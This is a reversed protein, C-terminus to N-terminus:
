RSPYSLKPPPPILISVIKKVFSEDLPKQFLIDLDFSGPSPTIASLVIIPVNKTRPNSKIGSYVQWGSQGPLMLDMVILDFSESELRAAAAPGSDAWEVKLGIRELVTRTLDACEEDDEIMLIKFKSLKETDYKPRPPPIIEFPASIPATGPSPSPPPPPPPPPLAPSIAQTQIEPEPAPPSVPEPVPEPVPIRSSQEAVLKLSQLTEQLQIREHQLIKILSESEEYISQYKGSPDMRMILQRLRSGELNITERLRVAESFMREPASARSGSEDGNGGDILGYEFIDGNVQYKKGLLFNKVRRMEAPCSVLDALASIDSRGKGPGYEFEAPIQDALVCLIRGKKESKVWQVAKKADEATKFVLGFLFAGLAREVAARNNESCQLLSAVCGEFGAFGQGLVAWAGRAYDSDKLVGELESLRRDMEAISRELTLVEPPVSKKSDGLASITSEIASLKDDIQHYFQQIKDTVPEM